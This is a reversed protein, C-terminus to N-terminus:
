IRKEDGDIGTLDTESQSTVLLTPPTPPAVPYTPLDDFPTAFSANERFNTILPFVVGRLFSTGCGPKNVHEILPSIVTLM